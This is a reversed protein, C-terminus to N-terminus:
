SVDILFFERGLRPIIGVNVPLVLSFWSLVRTLIVPSGASM